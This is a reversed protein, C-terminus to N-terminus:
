RCGGLCQTAAAGSDLSSSAKQMLRRFPRCFTLWALEPAHRVSANEWGHMCEGLSRTSAITLM